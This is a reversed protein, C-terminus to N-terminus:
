SGRRRNSRRNEPNSVSNINWDYHHNDIEDVGDLLQRLDQNAYQQLHSIIAEDKSGFDESYWIFISSVKLEGDVVEVARPHNVFEVAAKQLLRSTNEATFAQKQLNPCGISACNVVYHIRPDNWIPRLIRHEIDNLTVVEGEIEVLEINWPGFSLFGSSIDRISQVPFNREVVAITLANYLNIWYAFQEQRNYQSIKTDTLQKIYGDLQARHPKRFHAYAFRNVGDESPLVFRDLLQQWASHDISQTASADHATWRDWLDSEPAANVKSFGGLWFGALVFTLFFINRTM